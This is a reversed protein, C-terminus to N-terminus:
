ETNNDNSREDELLKFYDEDLPEDEFIRTGYDNNEGFGPPYNDM